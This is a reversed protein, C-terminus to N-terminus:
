GTKGGLALLHNLMFIRRLALLYFPKEFRGSKHGILSAQGDM